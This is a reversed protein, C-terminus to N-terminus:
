VSGMQFIQIFDIDVYVYCTMAPLPAITDFVNFFVPNEHKMMSIDTTQQLTKKTSQLDNKNNIYLETM